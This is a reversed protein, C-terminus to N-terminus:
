LAWSKNQGKLCNGGNDGVDMGRGWDGGQGWGVSHCAKGMSERPGFQM